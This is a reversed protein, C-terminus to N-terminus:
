TESPTTDPEPALLLQQQTIELSLLKRQLSRITKRADNIWAQKDPILVRSIHMREGETIDPRQLRERCEVISHKYFTITRQNRQISDKADQIREACTQRTIRIYAGVIEEQSPFTFPLEVKRVPDTLECENLLSRTFTRFKMPTRYRGIVAHQMNAIELVILDKNGSKWFSRDFDTSNIHAVLFENASESQAPTQIFLILKSQSM